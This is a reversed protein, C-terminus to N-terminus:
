WSTTAIIVGHVLNQVTDRVRVRPRRYVVAGAGGVKGRLAHMGRQDAVQGLAMGGGIMVYITTAM